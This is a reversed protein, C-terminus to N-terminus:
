YTGFSDSFEQVIVALPKVDDSNGATVRDNGGTTIFAKQGDTFIYVHNPESRDRFKREGIYYKMGKVEEPVGGAEEIAQEAADSEQLEFGWGSYGTIENFLQDLKKSHDGSSDDVKDLVNNPAEAALAVLKPLLRKLVARLQPNLPKETAVATLLLETNRKSVGPIELRALHLVTKQSLKTPKVAEDLKAAIRYTKGEFVFTEKKETKATKAATVFAAHSSEVINKPIWKMTKSENFKRDGTEDEWISASASAIAAIATSLEPQDASSWDLKNLARALYVFAEFTENVYDDSMDPALGKMRVLIQRAKNVASTNIDGENLKSEKMNKKEIYKPRVELVADWVENRLNIDKKAIDNYLDLLKQTDGGVDPHTIKMSMAHNADEFDERSVGHKEAVKWAADLIERETQETPSNLVQSYSWATASAIYAKESNNEKSM